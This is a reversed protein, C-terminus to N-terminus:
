ADIAAVFRRDIPKADIAETVGATLVRYTVGGDEREVLLQESEPDFFWEHLSGETETTLLIAPRGFPDKATADVTVGDLGATVQLLAAKQAPTVDPAELLEHISRILGWEVPGGWLGWDEYPEPSAGGPEVRERLQQELEAPDTSLYEAPGTDSYFEGPGFTGEHIGGGCCVKAIKGSDDLAWWTEYTSYGADVRMYYYDGAGLHLDQLPQGVPDGSAPRSRGGFGAISALGLGISGFGIVLAVVITTVRKRTVRADRRAYLARLDPEAAPAERRARELLERTENM